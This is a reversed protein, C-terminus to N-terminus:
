VRVGQWGRAGPQPETEPRIRRGPTDQGVRPGSRAASRAGACSPGREAGLDVSARGRPRCMCHTPCRRGSAAASVRTLRRGGARPSSGQAWPGLRVRMRATCIVAEAPGLDEVDDVDRLRLGAGPLLEVVDGGGADVEGVGVVTPTSLRGASLCPGSSMSGWEMARQDWWETAVRSRGAACTRTLREGASRRADGSASPGLARRAPVFASILDSSCRSCPDPGAGSRCRPGSERRRSRRSCRGASKTLEASAAPSGAGSVTRCSFPLTSSCWASGRSSARM